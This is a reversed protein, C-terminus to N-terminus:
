FEPATLTLPLLISPLRMNITHNDASPGGSYQNGKSKFFLAQLLSAASWSFNANIGWFNFICCVTFPPHNCPSRTSKFSCLDSLRRNRLCSYHKLELRRASSNNTKNRRQSSLPQPADLVAGAGERGVSFTRTVKSWFMRSIRPSPRRWSWQTISRRGLFGSRREPWRESQAGNFGPWAPRGGGGLSQPAANKLLLCRWPLGWLRCKRVTAGTRLPKVAARKRVRKIADGCFFPRQKVVWIWFVVRMDGQHGPRQENTPLLALTARDCIM